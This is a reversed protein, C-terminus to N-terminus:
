KEDKMVKVMAYRMFDAISIENKKCFKTVKDRFAIDVRTSMNTKEANTTKKLDALKM